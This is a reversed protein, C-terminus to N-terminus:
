VTYSKGTYQIMLILSLVKQYRPQLLKPLSITASSFSLSLQGSHSWLFAYCLTRDLIFTYLHNFLKIIPTSQNKLNSQEFRMRDRENFKFHHLHFSFSIIKNHRRQQLLGICRKCMDLIISSCTWKFKQMLNSGSDYFYFVSL